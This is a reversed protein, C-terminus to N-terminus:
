RNRRAAIKYAKLGNRTGISVVAAVKVGGSDDVQWIIRITKRDVYTSRCGYLPRGPQNELPKGFQDPAISIKILAKVVIKQVRRDLRLLDQRAQPLLRVNDPLDNSTKSTSM